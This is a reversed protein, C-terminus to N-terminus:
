PTSIITTGDDGREIVPPADVFAAIVEANTTTHLTPRLTRITSAGALTMPILLQDALHRGVPVGGALYARMEEVASQAVVEARTGIAGFGSCLESAGDADVSLLLANGPGASEVERLELDAPSWGLLSRVVDLERAGVDSSLNAVLAVARRRRLEGRERLDLPRWRHGGELEIEVVGGGAPYFGHRRLRVEISAGMERLRPALVGDIFEFPPAMAAHTGGELRLRSRGAASLLPWLVTQLVLMTSGASGIAFRYDGHRIARPRITIERAGLAAGDVDAGAIEAAARLATLHQRLLGPRRRKGRVDRLTLSRGYILALALSTRLVQGGGEGRSGDITVDSQKNTTAM